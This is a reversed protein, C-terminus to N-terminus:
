GNSGGDGIDGGWGEPKMDTWGEPTMDVYGERM